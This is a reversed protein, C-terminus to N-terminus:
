EIGAPRSRGLNPADEVLIRSSPLEEDVIPLLLRFTSGEGLSSSAQIQAGNEHALRLAIPLGLGTGRPKTSFFPDFIKELRGAPMGPGLDVVDIAVQARSTEDTVVTGAVRVRQPDRAADIANELLIVLIEVIQARDVMVEPLNQIAELVPKADTNSSRPELVTIAETLLTAPEVPRLSTGESHSFRLSRRVLKEVRAVLAVTRQAYERRSDGPEIEEILGDAMSRIAALPNRVQHAFGAAMQGFASLRKLQRMEEKVRKLEGLERFLILQYPPHDPAARVPQFSLGVSLERGGPLRLITDIRNENKALDPRFMQRLGEVEEFLTLFDRGVALSHDIGLLECATRNIFSIAREDTTLVVGFRVEGLITEMPALNEKITRLRAQDRTMKEELQDLPDSASHHRPRGTLDRQVGVVLDVSGSTDLLPFLKVENWFPTGDKRYNRLVVQCPTKQSLASRFKDVSGSDTEPRQLFRCNRGLVETSRYGSMRLFAANVYSLPLDPQRADAVSIGDDLEEFIPALLHILQHTNM